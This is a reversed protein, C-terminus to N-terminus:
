RNYLFPAGVLGDHFVHKAYGLIQINTTFITDMTQVLFMKQSAAREVREQIKVTPKSRFRKLRKEPKPKRKTEKKMAAGAAAAAVTETTNSESSKINM